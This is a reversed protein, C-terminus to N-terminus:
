TAPNNETDDSDISAQEVEVLFRIFTSFNSVALVALDYSANNDTTQAHRFQHYGKIQQSYGNMMTTIMIQDHDNNSITLIAKECLEKRCIKENLQPCNMILKTISEAALFIERIAYDYNSELLGQNAQNFHKSSAQYRQTDLAALTTQRNREFEDDPSFKIVGQKDMQYFVNEERFIQNTRDIYNDVSEQRYRLRSTIFDYTLTPLDLVDRIEGKEFLGEVSYYTGLESYPSQRIGLKRHILEDYKEYYKYDIMDSYLKSLKMRMRLSDDTPTENYSYIQSFRSKM